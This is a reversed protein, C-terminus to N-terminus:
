QKKQLNRWLLAETKINKTNQAIWMLFAYILAGIMGAIFAALVAIVLNDSFYGAIFGGCAGLAMMGEVGLNLHGARENMTEGLIGFLIPTGALIAAVIFKILMDM